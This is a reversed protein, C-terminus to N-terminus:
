NRTRNTEHNNIEWVKSYKASTITKELNFELSELEPRLRSIRALYLDQKFADKNAVALKLQVAYEILQNNLRSWDQDLSLFERSRHFMSRTEYLCFFM